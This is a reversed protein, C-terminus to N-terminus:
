EWGSKDLTIKTDTKEVGRQTKEQADTPGGYGAEERKVKRKEEAEKRAMASRDFTREEEIQTKTM